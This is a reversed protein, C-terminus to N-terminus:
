ARDRRVDDARLAGRLFGVGLRGLREKMPAHPLALPLVNHFDGSRPESVPMPIDSDTKKVGNVKGKENSRL